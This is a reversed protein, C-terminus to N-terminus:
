ATDEEASLLAAVNAGLLHAADAADSTSMAVFRPAGLRITSPRAPSAPPFVQQFAGSIWLFLVALLILLDLPESGISAPTRALQESV